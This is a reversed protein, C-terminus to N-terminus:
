IGRVIRRNKGSRTKGVRFRNRIMTPVCDESPFWGTPDLDATAPWSPSVLWGAGAAQFKMM